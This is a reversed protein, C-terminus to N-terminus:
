GSRASKDADKAKLEVRLSGLFGLRQGMLCCLSARGLRGEVVRGKFRNESRRPLISHLM